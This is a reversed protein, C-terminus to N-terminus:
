GRRASNEECPGLGSLVMANANFHGGSSVLHVQGPFAGDQGQLAAPPLVHHAGVGLGAEPNVVLCCPRLLAM